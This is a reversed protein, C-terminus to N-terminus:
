SFISPNGGTHWFLLKGAVERNSILQTIGAFAKGTYIPDLLIGETKALYRIAADGSESAVGYGPGVFGLNLRFDRAELEQADILPALARGLEALDDAMEPEPDASIGLVKTSSGAFAYSLGTQTSGSSSACIIWDFSHGSEIVEKGAEYFAFAGLASSGGVPIRYVRKGQTEERQALEEGFQYLQEWSGNPYEQLEGGFLRSLLPNGNVPNLRGGKPEKFEFPLEMVAACCRLGLKACGAALARIFNSHIGGCTVVTDCQQDLADALLYELKRVKNGGLAFGSLDDRKIWLDTGLDASARDM